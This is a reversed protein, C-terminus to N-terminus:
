TAYGEYRMDGSSRDDSKIRGSYFSILPIIEGLGAHGAGHSRADNLEQCRSAVIEMRLGFRDIRPNPPTVLPGGKAIREATRLAAFAELLNTPHLDAKRCVPDHMAIPKVSTRSRQGKESLGDWSKRRATHWREPATGIASVCRQIFREFGSAFLTDEATEATTM